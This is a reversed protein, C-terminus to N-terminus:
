RVIDLVPDGAQVDKGPQPTVSGLEATNLVTVLTTTSFGAKTVKDFDV